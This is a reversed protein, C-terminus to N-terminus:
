HKVQDLRVFPMFVDYSFSHRKPTHRCHYLTGRYLRSIM